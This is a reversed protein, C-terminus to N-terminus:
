LATQVKRLLSQAHTSPAAPWTFVIPDVELAAHADRLLSRADIGLVRGAERAVYAEFAEDFQLQADDLSYTKPRLTRNHYFMHREIAATCYEEDGIDAQRVFLRCEASFLDTYAQKYLAGRLYRFSPAVSPSDRTAHRAHFKLMSYDPQMQEVWAKQMRMDGRITDEDARLHEQKGHIESRIDSLFILCSKKRDRESWARAHADTFKDQTFTVRESRCVASAASRHLRKPDYLHMDVKNRVNSAGVHKIILPLHIGPSAGAIVLDIRRTDGRLRMDEVALTLALMNSLLLKRQGRLGHMPQFHADVFAQDWDEQKHLHAKLDVDSFEWSM